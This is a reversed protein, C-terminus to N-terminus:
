GEQHPVWEEIVYKLLLDHSWVSVVPLEREAKTLTKHVSEVGKREIIWALTTGDTDIMGRRRLEDPIGVGAPLPVSNSIVEVFAANASPRAPYFAYYGASAALSVLDSPRKKHFGSLVRIVDGYDLHKGVYQLYALGRRTRLELVAGPKLRIRRM